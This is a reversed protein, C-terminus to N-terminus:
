LKQKMPLSYFFTSGKGLTSEYWIKGGCKEILMRAVALGLGSGVEGSEIAQKTRYFREFVHSREHDSIGIGSDTVGVQINSGNLTRIAIKIVGGKNSYKISNSLLNLHVQKVLASDFYFTTAENTKEIEFTIEKKKVNPELEQCCEQILEMLDHEAMVVEFKGREIRSVSLLDDVLKSLKVTADHVVKANQMLDDALKEKGMLM